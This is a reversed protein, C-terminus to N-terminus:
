FNRSTRRDMMILSSRTCMEQTMWESQRTWTPKSIKMEMLIGEVKVPISLGLVEADEINDMAVANCPQINYPLSTDVTISPYVITIPVSQQEGVRDAYQSGGDVNFGVTDSGIFQPARKIVGWM